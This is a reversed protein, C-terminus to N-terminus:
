RGHISATRSRVRGSSSGYRGATMRAAFNWNSLNAKKATASTRFATSLREQNDPTPAVLTLGVTGPVDEARLGLLKIAERNARVFRTETDEFVYPIPAEDFLDRYRKESEKLMQEMRLRNLEAAARSAFVRFILLKNPVLPMPREDFVALHGLVQGESDVLPVGLYSQIGLDILGEDQPFREQVGAPHHCLAPM